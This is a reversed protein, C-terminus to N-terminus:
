DPFAPLVLLPLDGLLPQLVLVRSSSDRKEAIPACMTRALAGHRKENSGSPSASSPQSASMSTLWSRALHFSCIRSIRIMIHEDGAVDAREALTVM